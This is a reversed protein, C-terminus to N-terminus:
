KSFIFYYGTTLNNRKNMLNLIFHIPIIFIMIFPFLLISIIKQIMKNRNISLLALMIITDWYSNREVLDIVKFNNFLHMLGYKTYRYYDYPEDHLPYCLATSGIFIGKKKLKRHIEKVAISPNKVHEIVEMCIIVDISEDEFKEMNELSLVIDPNRDPDIDITTTKVNNFKIIESTYGTSGVEVINQKNKCYINLSYSLWKNLNKRSFSKTFRLVTMGFLRNIIRNIIKL